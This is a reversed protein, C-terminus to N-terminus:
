SYQTCTYIAADVQVVTYLLLYAAASLKIYRCIHTLVLFKYVLIKFYSCFDSRRVIQVDSECTMAFGVLQKM